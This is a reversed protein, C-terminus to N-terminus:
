NSVQVTRRTSGAVTDAQASCAGLTMVSILLILLITVLKKLM